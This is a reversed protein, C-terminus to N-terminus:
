AMIGTDGIDAEFSKYGVGLNGSSAFLRFTADIDIDPDPSGVLAYKFYMKLHLGQSDIQVTPESRKSLNEVDQNNEDALFDDVTTRIMAQILSEPVANWQCNSTDVNVRITGLTARRLGAMYHDLAYYTSTDPQVILSGKNAVTQGRIALTGCNPPVFANWRLTTTEFAVITSPEATFSRFIIGDTCDLFDNDLDIPIADVPSLRCFLMAGLLAAVSLTNANVAAIM